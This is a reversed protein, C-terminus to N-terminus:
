TWGSWRPPGSALMWALKVQPLGASKSLGGLAFTLARAEGALSVATPRPAIPYDVFVEDAVLALGRDVAVGVLWERDDADLMSGTPNNPSVVLIARVDAALGAEVSRRDISWGAAPDLRYQRAVVGELQSLLDFLPYGPAPVLVAEGPNGLLKFLLSYAESTSATLVIAEPDATVARRAYDAAIARRAGLHGRAEPAYRLVDADALALRVSDPYDLGVATPNTCTLDLLRRGSARAAALAVSFANPTLPPLRSSFM